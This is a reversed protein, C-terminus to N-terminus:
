CSISKYINVSELLFGFVISLWWGALIYWLCMVSSQILGLFVATVYREVQINRFFMTPLTAVEASFRHLIDQQGNVNSIPLPGSSSEFKEPKATM